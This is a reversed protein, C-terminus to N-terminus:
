DNNKDGYLYEYALTRCDKEEKQFICQNCKTTYCASDYDFNRVLNLLEPLEPYKM